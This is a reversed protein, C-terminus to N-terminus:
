LSQRHRWPCRWAMKALAGMGYPETSITGIGDRYKDDEFYQDNEARQRAYRRERVQTTVFYPVLYLQLGSGGVARYLISTKASASPEEYNEGRVAARENSNNNGNNNNNRGRRARRAFTACRRDWARRPRRWESSNMRTRQKRCSERETKEFLGLRPKLASLVLFVTYYLLPYIYYIFYYVCRWWYCSVFLCVLFFCPESYVLMSVCTCCGTIRVCTRPYLVTYLPILYHKIRSTM